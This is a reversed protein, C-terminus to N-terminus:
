VNTALSTEGNNGPFKILKRSKLCLGVTLTVKHNLNEFKFFSKTKGVM